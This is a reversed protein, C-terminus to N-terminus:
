QRTHFRLVLTQATSRLLSARFLEDLDPAYLSSPEVASSSSSTSSTKVHHGYPSAFVSTHVSADALRGFAERLSEGCSFVSTANNVNLKLRHCSLIHTRYLIIPM